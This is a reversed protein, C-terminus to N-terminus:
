RAAGRRGSRSPSGTRPTTSASARGTRPCRSRGGRDRGPRTPGPRGRGRKSQRAAIPAWRRSTWSSWTGALQSACQRRTTLGTRQREDLAAAPADRSRRTSHSAAIGLAKAAKVKRRRPKFLAVRDPPSTEVVRRCRCICCVVRSAPSSSRRVHRPTRSGTSSACIGRVRPAIEPYRAAPLDPFLHHEIQHSLHGTLLHFWAAARSTPRATSSACTGSARRSEDRSRRRTFVGCARPSTAASSSPSRGCTAPSTPSCTAPSRRAAREVLALAPFFSTTRARAALAAKALFPRARERLQASRSSAPSRARRARLDHTGVGWEFCFALGVALLPQALHARAGASSRRSVRLCGYGVDRDKGLINTFTHHEYNHSHRWDIAPASSTGSTARALRADPDHTWDYQGHM